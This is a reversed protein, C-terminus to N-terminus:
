ESPYDDDRTPYDTASELESVLTQVADRGNELVNTGHTVLVHDFEYELLTAVSDRMAEDDTNWDPNIVGLPGSWSYHQAFVSDSGLVTDGAVLTDDVLFAMNGPTHGPAAIAEIGHITDGPGICHDHTIGSADLRHVDDAPVAVDVDFAARLADVGGYHDPDGHEVIVLDLDVGALRTTLEDATCDDGAGFLVTVEPQQVLFVSLPERSDDWDHYEPNYTLDIPTITDPLPM